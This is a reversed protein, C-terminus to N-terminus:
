INGFEDKQTLIAGLGHQGADVFLETASATNFHKLYCSLLSDKLDSIKKSHEPTWIFDAYKRLLANLLHKKACMKPLRKSFYAAM